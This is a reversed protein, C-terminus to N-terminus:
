HELAPNQLFRSLLLAVFAVDVRIMVACYLLSGILEQYRKVEKASAIEENKRYEIIPVPITPNSMSSVLDYKVAIKEIYQAHSLCITHEICDRIIEIGLFWEADGQDHIDYAEKI